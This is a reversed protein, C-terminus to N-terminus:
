FKDLRAAAVGDTKVRTLFYVRRLSFFSCAGNKRQTLPTPRDAHTAAYADGKAYSSSLFFSLEKKGTREARSGGPKEEGLLQQTM